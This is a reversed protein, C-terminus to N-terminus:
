RVVTPVLRPIRAQAVTRAGVTRSAPRSLARWSWYAADVLDFPKTRPFRRLARELIHHDGLVHVIRGREYDVLMQQARHAKPQQTSGAKEEDFAPRVALCALDDSGAIAILAALYEDTGTVPDGARVSSVEATLAAWAERWVSQWTDGGQDTEIGVKTAGELVAWACALKLADVPGARREWSRLRYIRGDSGLGDVQIAMSDSNDTATVAPDVWAEVRVLPPVDERRVHRFELHDFMGGALVDTDHQAELRFATIGWEDIQRNCVQLDQGAWTPEGDIIRWRGEDDRDFTAARVAPVPGSVIRRGLFDAPESSVGALRGFIGDRIPLNQIGVVALDPGGAPLLKQTISRIKRETQAPGDEESDIDDFVILDPRHEDIRVGRAATDLGLADVTLGSATRLRNRRWGKSAGYKGVARRGLEPYALEVRRSELLGAINSVHDDAQPQTACVYLVFRRRQRAGLAAVAAEASTSKAGGRPWVAIFAADPKVSPEISWVWEWFEVHHAAFPAVFHGPFMFRLWQQWDNEESRAKQAVAADLTAEYADLEAATMEALDEDSVRCLEDILRDLSDPPATM